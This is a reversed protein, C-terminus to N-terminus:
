VMGLLTDLMEDSITILKAAAAYANQFKILNTMEEDISVASISDRIESLKNVMVENFARGRSTSASIIGISGVMAHYYAEVRAAVNSSSNATSGGRSIAWQEIDRSDNQLDTIALANTNDGVAITESTDSLATVDITFTDTDVYTGPNFTLTVGANITQPSGITININASWAGDDKKWRFKITGVDDIIGITYTANATDTYPGSTTISGTSTNTAAPVALGVNNIIKGAAIYDKNKIQANTGISGASDGKFFTNIGLAALLGSADLDTIAPSTSAPSIQVVENAITISSVAFTVGSSLAGVLAPVRDIEVLKAAADRGVAPATGTDRVVIELLEGLLGGAENIQNVALKAGNAIPPGFPALGGTLSYM